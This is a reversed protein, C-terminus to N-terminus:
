EQGGETKIDIQCLQMASLANRHSDETVCSCCDADVSVNARDYFFSKVIIANSIVCIGTCTGVFEIDFEGEPGVINQIEYLLSNSGFSEQISGFTPKNVVIVSYQNTVKNRDIWSKLEPILEWGDTGFICHPIPLKEGEKSYMYDNTHTDRTFIVYKGDFSNLKDIIKPVIDVCAKNGLTGTVFDNQMDIVCLIKHKTSM